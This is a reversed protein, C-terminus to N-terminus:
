PCIADAIRQMETAARLADMGQGAARSNNTSRFLFLCFLEFLLGISLFYATKVSLARMAVPEDM